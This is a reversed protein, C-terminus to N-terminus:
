HHLYFRDKKHKKYFLFARPPLHIFCAPKIFLLFRVVCFIKTDDYADKIVGKVKDDLLRGQVVCCLHLICRYIESYIICYSKICDHNIRMPVRNHTHTHIHARAHTHTQTYTLM